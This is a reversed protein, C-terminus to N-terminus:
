EERKALQKNKWGKQNGSPGNNYKKTIRIGNAFCFTVTFNDIIVNEIFKDVKIEEFEEIKVYDSKTVGRMLHKNLELTEEKIENRVKEVEKNYDNVEILHNVRLANLENEEIILQKIREKIEIVIENEPKTEIFENYAEVFKEKLVDDKIRSNTCVAKGYNNQNGCTWVENRWPKNTNNFKHNFKGGCCGCIMKGTFPYPAVKERGILTASARLKIIEQVKDFEDPEIIAEHTNEMYYKKELGKNLKAVGNIVVVKQTLSCGKYKENKLIYSITGRSWKTGGNINKYGEKELMLSIPAFGFGQLYLEFIRRVIKAEDEVVELTNTENNMKYGLIQHGITIYGNAFRKKFSWRQNESYIKLDNEAVAAAITLFVEASPDFTDINEKEFVVKVGLDRLERVMELLETTNRSLRSVSKTYVVDFKHEKADEILQNLQPRKALWRGSIGWDSYVGVYELNPNRDIMDKWYNVQYDYSHLQADSKTSVRIYAVAKKITQNNM